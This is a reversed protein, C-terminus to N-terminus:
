PTNCNLDSVAGEASRSCLFREWTTTLQRAARESVPESSALGHRCRVVGVCDRMSARAADVFREVSALHFPDVRPLQWTVKHSVLEGRGLVCLGGALGPRAGRGCGFM